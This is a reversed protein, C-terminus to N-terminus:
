SAHDGAAQIEKKVYVEEMKFNHLHLELLRFKNFVNLKEQDTHIMRGKGTTIKKSKIM